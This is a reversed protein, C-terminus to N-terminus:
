TIARTGGPGSRVRPVRSPFWAREASDLVKGSRGHHKNGHRPSGIRATARSGAPGHFHRAQRHANARTLRLNTDPVASFAPILLSFLVLVHIETDESSHGRPFAPQNGHERCRNGRARRQGNGRTAPRGRRGRRDPGVLSRALGGPQPLEAADQGRALQGQWAGDLDVEALFVHPKRDVGPDGVCACGMLLLDPVDQLVGGGRAGRVVQAHVVRGLQGVDADGARRAHLGDVQDVRRRRLVM